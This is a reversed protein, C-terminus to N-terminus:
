YYDFAGAAALFCVSLGRASTAAAFVSYFEMGAVGVVVVIRSTQQEKQERVAEIHRALSPPPIQLTQFIIARILKAYLICVIKCDTLGNLIFSANLGYKLIQIVCSKSIYICKYTM